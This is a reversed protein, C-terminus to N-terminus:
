RFDKLRRPKAGSELKQKPENIQPIARKLGTPLDCYPRRNGLAGTRIQGFTKKERQSGIHLAIDTPNCGSMGRDMLYEGSRHIGASVSVSLRTTLAVEIVLSHEFLSGM